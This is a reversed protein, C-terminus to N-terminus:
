SSVKTKQSYIRNGERRHTRQSQHLSYSSYSSHQISPFALIKTDIVRKKKSSLNIKMCLVQQQVLYFHTLSSLTSSDSKKVPKLFTLLCTPCVPWNSKLNTLMRRSGSRSANAAVAVLFFTPPSHFYVFAPQYVHRPRVSQVSPFSDQLIQSIREYNVFVSYHVSLLTSKFPHQTDSMHM